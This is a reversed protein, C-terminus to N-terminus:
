HPQASPKANTAPPAPHTMEELDKKRQTDYAAKADLLEQQHSAFVEQAVRAGQQQGIRAAETMVVPTAELFHQGEPTRYFAIAKTADEQSLHRAYTPYLLAPFDIKVLNEELEKWISEPIWPPASARQMVLAEHALSRLMTQTGVLNFIERTQELTIPHAPSTAEASQSAAASPQQAHMATAFLIVCSAVICFRKM